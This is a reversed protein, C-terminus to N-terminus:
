VLGGSYALIVLAVRDRCDLRTMLKSVYIRTTGPSLSLEEAIEANTFGRGICTLLGRERPSLRALLERHDETQRGRGSLAYRMVQRTARPDLVAEGAHARRVAAQLAEPELDKHLFGAAGAELADFLLEDSDFTTLVVVPVTAIDDRRNIAKLASIGDMIPMRIDMLIVDVDPHDVSSLIDLADKGHAAEATVVIRHDGTAIELLAKIGTRVMAQDDVVMVHTADM